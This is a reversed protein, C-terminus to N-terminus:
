PKNDRYESNKNVYRNTKNSSNMEEGTNYKTDAEVWKDDDHVFHVVDKEKKTTKDVANTM